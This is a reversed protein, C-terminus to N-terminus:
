KKFCVKAQDSGTFAVSQLRVANPPTELEQHLDYAIERSLDPAISNWADVIGRAISARVDTRIKDLVEPRGDNDIATEFVSEGVDPLAIVDGFDFNLEMQFYPLPSIAGFLNADDVRRDASRPGQVCRQCWGKVEPGETEFDIHLRLGEPMPDVRWTQSNLDNIYYDRRKRVYPAYEPLAIREYGLLNGEETSEPKLLIYNDGKKHASIHKRGVIRPRGFQNLHLRPDRSLLAKNISRALQFTTTDFCLQASDARRCTVSAFADCFEHGCSLGDGLSVTPNRWTGVKKAVKFRVAQEYGELQCFKDAAEIGCKSGRILCSNVRMGDREPVPFVREEAQATTLGGTMVLGALGLGLCMAKVAKRATFVNKM